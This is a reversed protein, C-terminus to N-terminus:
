QCPEQSSSVVVVLDDIALNGNTGSTTLRFKYIDRFSLPLVILYPGDTRTGMTHIYNAAVNGQVDFGEFTIDNDSNRDDIVM